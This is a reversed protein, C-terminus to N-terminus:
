FFGIVSGVFGVVVLALLVRLPSWNLKRLLWYCFSVLLIPILSPLIQDLVSQLEVVKQTTEGQIEVTRQFTLSTGIGLISPIFGGIVTIGAITAYETIKEIRGQGSVETVVNTGENYGVWFLGYQVLIGWVLGFAIMLWFGGMSGALAMSAAFVGVIPRTLVAYLTDGIGAFPGMLGVKLSDVADGDAKNEEMAATAGMIAAGVMPQTNFFNMHRKVAAILEDKTKYAKKLVPLISWAYGLAQMREYNWSWQFTLVYRWLVSKIDDRTVKKEENPM